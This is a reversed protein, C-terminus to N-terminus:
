TVRASSLAPAVMWSMLVTRLCRVRTEPPCSARAALPARTSASIMESTTPSSGTCMADPGQTGSGLTYWEIHRPTYLHYDNSSRAPATDYWPMDRETGDNAAPSYVAGDGRALYAAAVRYDGGQHVALGGGSPPDTDDNHHQNFGNWWDLHYEALNPEGTEGAGPWRGTMKLNSEIAALTGHCWCTGGSQNKVPTVFNTGNVSHLDYAPPLAHLPVGALAILLATRFRAHGRPFARRSGSYGM